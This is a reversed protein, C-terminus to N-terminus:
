IHILSLTSTARVYNANVTTLVFPDLTNSFEFAVTVGSGMEGELHEVFTAAGHNSAVATNRDHIQLSKAASLAAADLANQMRTVNVFAHSSDIALGAVGVMVLMGVAVLPLIGGHQRCKCSSLETM